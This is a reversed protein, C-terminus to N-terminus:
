RGIVEDRTRRVSGGVPFPAAFSLIVEAIERAQLRIRPDDILDRDAVPRVFDLLVDVLDQETMDLDAVVACTTGHMSVIGLFATTCGCSCWEQPEYMQADCAVAPVVLEGPITFAFEGDDDPVLGATLLRM